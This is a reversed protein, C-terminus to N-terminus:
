HLAANLLHALHVGATALQRNVLPVAQARYDQDLAYPGAAPGVPPQYVVSKALLVSDQEWANEDDNAAIKAFPKPLAHAAELAAEPKRGAGPLNDWWDHLTNRCPAKCVSVLRGSENGKPFAKTIRTTANLPQHVDAVINLLWVLDYSKVNDPVDSSLATRMTAIQTLASPTPPPGLAPERPNTPIPTPAFHWWRHQRMDSYGQPAEDEPAAPPRDGDNTYGPKTRIADAWTAAQMFILEDRLPGKRGAAWQKYAPNLQLLRMARARAAPTLQEYAVAAAEMHGMDNWAFAQPVLSASLALALVLRRM